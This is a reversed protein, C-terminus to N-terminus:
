ESILEREKSRPMAVLRGPHQLSHRDTRASPLRARQM